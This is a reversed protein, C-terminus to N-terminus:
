LHWLRPHNSLARHGKASLRQWGSLVRLLYKFWQGHNCREESHLNKAGHSVINICESDENKSVDSKSQLPKQSKAIEFRARQGGSPGVRRYMKAPFSSSPYLPIM